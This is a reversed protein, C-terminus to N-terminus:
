EQPTTHTATMLIHSAIMLLQTPHLLEFQQLKLLITYIRLGKHTKPFTASLPIKLYTYLCLRKSTM